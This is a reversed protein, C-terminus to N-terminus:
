YCYKLYFHILADEGKPLIFDNEEGISDGDIVIPLNAWISRLEIAADITDRLSKYHTERLSSGIISTNHILNFSCAQCIEGTDPKVYPLIVVWGVLDSKRILYKQKNRFLIGKHRRLESTM